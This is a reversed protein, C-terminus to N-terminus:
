NVRYSSFLKLCICNMNVELLPMAFHNQRCKNLMIANECREAHDCKEGGSGKVRKALRDNSCQPPLKKSRTM